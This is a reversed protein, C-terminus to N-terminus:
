KVLHHNIQTKGAKQKKSLFQAELSKYDEDSCVAVLAVKFDASLGDADKKTDQEAAKFTKFEEKSRFNLRGCWMPKDHCDKTCWNYKRDNRTLTKKKEKNVFRWSVESPGSDTGIGALNGKKLEKIQALLAM